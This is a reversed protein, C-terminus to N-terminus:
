QKGGTALPGVLCVGPVALLFMSCFGAMGSFIIKTLSVVVLYTSVHQSYLTTALGVVGPIFCVCFGVYLGFVIGAIMMTNGILKKM